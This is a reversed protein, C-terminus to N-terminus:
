FPNFSEASKTCTQSTIKWRGGLRELTFALWGKAQYPKGEVISTEGVREILWAHDASVYVFSPPDSTIAIDHRQTERFMQAGSAMYREFAGPGTWLFPAWEDVFICDPAYEEQVKRIDGARGADLAAEVTAAVEAKAAAPEAAFAPAALIAAAAVIMSTALVGPM